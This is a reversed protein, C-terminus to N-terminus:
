LKYIPAQVGYAPLGLTTMVSRQQPGELYLMRADSRELAYNFFQLKTLTGDIGKANFPMKGIFVPGSTESFLVGALSAVGARVAAPSRNLFSASETTYLDGDLFVSLKSGKVVLAVNWWRQIPMYEITAVVWGADRPAAIIQEVDLDTRAASTKLMVKLRNAENDLVVLPSFPTHLPSVNEKDGRIFVARAKDNPPAASNDFQAVYLWFSYSYDTGRVTPPVLERKIEVAEALDALRIPRRTLDYSRLDSRRARYVIYVVCLVILGAVAVVLAAAGIGSLEDFAM